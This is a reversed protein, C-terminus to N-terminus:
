ARTWRSAQAPRWSSSPTRRSTNAASASIRPGNTRWQAKLCTWRRSPWNTSGASSTATPTWMVWPRAPAWPWAWSPAASWVWPAPWRPSTATTPSWSPCTASKWRRATMSPSSWGGSKGRFRSLCPRFWRATASSFAPPPCASATWVRCKPPRPASPPSSATSIISRTPSRRPIGSSRRRTSPKATSSRPSRATPAAPTSASAAARWIAASPSPPKTQRRATRRGATSSRLPFRM